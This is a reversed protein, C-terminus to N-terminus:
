LRRGNKIIRRLRNKRKIAVTAVTYVIILLVVAGATVLVSPRLAWAKFKDVSYAFNSREVNSLAILKVRGYSRGEYSVDAEGLYQGKIVPAELTEEYIWPTIVVKTKDFDVPMLQEIGSQTVAVVRDTDQSM